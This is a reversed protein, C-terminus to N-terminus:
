DTIGFVGVRNGNGDRLVKYDAGNEVAEALERLIRALEIGPSDTFAANDMEIKLTAHM